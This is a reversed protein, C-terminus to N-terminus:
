LTRKYALKAAEVLSNLNTREDVRIDTWKPNKQPRADLEPMDLETSPVRVSFWFGGRQTYIGAFNVSTRFLVHSKTIREEVNDSIKLTADRLEAATKKMKANKIKELHHELTVKEWLDEIRSAQTLRQLTTYLRAKPVFRNDKLPISDAFKVLTGPKLHIVRKGPEFTEIDTEQIKVLDEKSKLPQTISEIEGFYLVSSEPSGVYLAFYPVNEEQINVFGWANYKKLFEIGAIKSPCIVVKGSPKAALQKRTVLQVEKEVTEKTVTESQKEFLQIAQAALQNSLNEIRSKVEKGTIELLIKKFEEAIQEQKQRLNRKAKRTAALRKVADEIGGSLISDRAILNLDKAQMPLKTLDIEIVLCEKETKGQKTDFVKLTKGNTLVVWQVDQVKGYSIAQQSHKSLLTVEFAKTEVFVVPENELMLAYDVTNTGTGMSVPFELEVENGRTDWGLVDLLPEIIKKKTNEESSIRGRKSFNDIAKAINSFEKALLTATLISGV